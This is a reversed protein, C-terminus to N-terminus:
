GKASIQAFRYVQDTWEGGRLEREMGMPLPCVGHVRGAVEDTAAGWQKASIQVIKGAVQSVGFRIHNHQWPGRRDEREMGMPLPCVGHVRGAMEDTAAGWQIGWQKASIRFGPRDQAQM